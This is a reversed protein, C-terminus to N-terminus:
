KVISNNLLITSKLKGIIKGTETPWVERIDVTKTRDCPCQTLYKLLRQARTDNFSLHRQTYSRQLCFAVFCFWGQLTHSSWRPHFSPPKIVTRLWMSTNIRCYRTHLLFSSLLFSARSIRELSSSVHWCSLSWYLSMALWSRSRWWDRFFFYRSSMTRIVNHHHGRKRTSISLPAKLMRDRRFLASDLCNGFPFVHFDKVKDPCSLWWGWKRWVWYRKSTSLHISGSVQEPLRSHVCTDSHTQTHRIWKNIFQIFRNKKKEPPNM